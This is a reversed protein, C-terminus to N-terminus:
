YGDCDFLAPSCFAICEVAFSGIVWVAMALLNGVFVIRVTSERFFIFIILTFVCNIYNLQLFTVNLVALINKPPFKGQAIRMAQAVALWMLRAILRM